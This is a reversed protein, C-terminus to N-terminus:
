EAGRGSYRHCAAWRGPGVEGLRPEVQSCVPMVAPCRTNFPCGPPLALPSPVEGPLRAADRRNRPHGPLAARLLAQTYPHLPECFLAESDSLEVIKGLYMVAVKHSLYRVTALNHAILLYSLQKQEQIDKLLNMIQARISVDLASVPEDLVILAPDLALARALAIRQRQGGSFEHPYLQAQGPHLGVELLLKAVQEQIDKRAFSKNIEIPEAVIAAVKMRPDLSSWPDQFVAQVSRRYERQVGGSQRNIDHSRFLISGGTPRELLLIMRATTTKGCGSEGVISFTQQHGIAFDIGDVAKIWGLNRRFLLGQGAPFYKQLSKVELLMDNMQQWEAGGLMEGM